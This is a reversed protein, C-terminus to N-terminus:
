RARAYADAYFRFFPRQGISELLMRILKRQESHEQAYVVRMCAWYLDWDIRWPVSQCDKAVQILEFLEGMAWDVDDLDPTM